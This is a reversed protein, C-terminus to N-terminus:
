GNLFENFDRIYDTEDYPMSAICLLVANQSFSIERWYMKPIM